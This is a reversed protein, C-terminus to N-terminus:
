SKQEKQVKGDVKKPTRPEKKMDKPGKQGKRGM